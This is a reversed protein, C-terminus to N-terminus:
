KGNRRVMLRKTIYAVFALTLQTAFALFPLGPFAITSYYACFLACVYFVLATSSTIRM